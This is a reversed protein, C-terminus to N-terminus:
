YIPQRFKMNGQLYRNTVPSCIKNYMIILLLYNERNKKHCRPQLNIDTSFNLIITLM